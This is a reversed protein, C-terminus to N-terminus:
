HLGTARYESPFSDLPFVAADRLLTDNISIFTWLVDRSFGAAVTNREVYGALSTIAAKLDGRYPEGPQCIDEAMAHWLTRHLELVDELAAHEAKQQPDFGRLRENLVSLQAFGPLRSTTKFM